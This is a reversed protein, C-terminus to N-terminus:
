FYYNRSLVQETCSYYKIPGGAAEVVAVCRRRGSRMKYPQGSNGATNPAVDIENVRAGIYSWVNEIM